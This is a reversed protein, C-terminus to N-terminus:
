MPDLPDAILPPQDRGVRFRDLSMRFLRVVNTVPCVRAYTQLILQARNTVGFKAFMHNLHMKVSQESVNMKVAIEKTVLGDLVYRLVTAERPTLLTRVTDIREVITKEIVGQVEMAHVAVQELISREVWLRGDRVAAIARILHTSDMNENVYGRIGGIVADVLFDRSMQQGFVIIRTEPSAGRVKAVMQQIPVRVMSHHLLLIEPKDEQFKRWCAESAEVCAIVKIDASAGVMRAIGEVSFDQRAVIYVSAPDTTARVALNSTDTAAKSIM